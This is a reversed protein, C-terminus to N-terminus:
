GSTGETIQRKVEEPTLGSVDLGNVTTNPFYVQKYKQGAVVYVAGAAVAAILVSAGVTVAIKSGANSEDHKSRGRRRSRGTQQNETEM